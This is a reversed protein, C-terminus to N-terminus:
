QCGRWKVLPPLQIRLRSRLGIDLQGRNERNADALV